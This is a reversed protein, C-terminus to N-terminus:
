SGIKVEGSCHIIVGGGIHLGTHPMSSGSKQFVCAVVDPMNAVSGRQAWNKAANYQSSVTGGSIDIGVQKLCWHTFGRCDFARKGEYQCM